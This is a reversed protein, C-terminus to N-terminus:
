IRRGSPFPSMKQQAAISPSQPIREDDPLMGLIGALLANCTGHGQGTALFSGYLDIQAAAAPEGLMKRSVYGIRVAGATHSSSPGVMVPGIIDFIGM